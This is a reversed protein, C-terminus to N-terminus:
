RFISPNPGELPVVEISFSQINVPEYTLINWTKERAEWEEDSIEDPKDTNNWYCYEQIKPQKCWEDFWTQHATYVIGLLEGNHPILSVSFDTDVNPMRLKKQRLIKERFDLWIMYNDVKAKVPDETPGNRSKDLNEMFRDMLKEAEKNIWPRFNQIISLVESFSNTKIKFGKYIKTSM